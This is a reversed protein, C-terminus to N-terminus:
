VHARGIEEDHGLGRVIDAVQADLMKATEQIMEWQETEIINVVIVGDQETHATIVCRSDDLGEFEYEVIEGDDSHDESFFKFIFEWFNLSM